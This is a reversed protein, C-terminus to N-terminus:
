QLLVDWWISIIQWSSTIIATEHTHQPGNSTLFLGTSLNQKCVLAELYIDISTEEKHM